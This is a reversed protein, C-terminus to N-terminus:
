CELKCMIGLVEKIRTDICESAISDADMIQMGKIFAM